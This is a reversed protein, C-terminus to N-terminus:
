PCFFSKVGLTLEGLSFVVQSLPSATGLEQGLRVLLLSRIIASWDTTQKTRKM